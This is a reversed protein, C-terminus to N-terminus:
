GHGDRGGGSKKPKRRCRCRQEAIQGPNDDVAQMKAWDGAERTGSQCSQGEPVDDKKGYEDFIVNREAIGAKEEWM